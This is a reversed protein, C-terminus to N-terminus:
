MKRPSNRHQRDKVRQSHESKIRRELRAVLEKSASLPDYGVAKADIVGKSTIVRTRLSYKRTKHKDAYVVISIVDGLKGQIKELFRALQEQIEIRDQGDEFHAMHIIPESSKKPLILELMDKPTVIGMPRGDGVVVVEENQKFHDIIVNLKTGREVSVARRAIDKVKVDKIGATGGSIAASKSTRERPTAIIKAIDLISLTGRLIGKTNIVPLRSINYRRMKSIADALSTNEEIVIAGSMVEDVIARGFDSTSVLDTESVIGVLKSKEVVVPMARNGNGIVLQAAKEIDHDPSLTSTNIIYSKLKSSPQATTNILQKAFLMGLYKNNEDVTPIQNISRDAMLNLAKAVTDESSLTVVDTVMIESVKM